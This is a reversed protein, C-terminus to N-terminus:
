NVVPHSPIEYDNYQPNIVSINRNNNANNNNPKNNTNKNSIGVFNSSKRATATTLTSQSTFVIPSSAINAPNFFANGSPPSFNREFAGAGQYAALPNDQVPLSDPVFNPNQAM